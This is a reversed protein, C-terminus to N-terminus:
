IISITAVAIISKNTLNNKNYNQECLFGSTIFSTTTRSYTLTAVQVQRM